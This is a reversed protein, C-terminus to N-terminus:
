GQSAPQHINKTMTLINQDGKRRYEINDMYKEILFFGLGGIDRQEIEAETDPHKDMNTLPNFPVGNDSITAIVCDEKLVLDIEIRENEQHSLGHIIINTLAEDLCLNLAFVVHEDLHHKEAFVAIDDSLKQLEDINSQYTLKM